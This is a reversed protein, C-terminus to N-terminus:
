IITNSQTVSYFSNVCRIIFMICNGLEQHLYMTFLFTREIESPERANESSTQCSDSVNGTRRMRMKM